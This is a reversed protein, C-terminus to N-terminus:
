KVIKQTKSTKTYRTPLPVLLAVKYQLDNLNHRTPYSNKLRAILANTSDKYGSLKIIDCGLLDQLCDSIQETNEATAELIDISGKLHLQDLPNRTEKDIQFNIKAIFKLEVLDDDFDTEEQQGLAACDYIAKAM